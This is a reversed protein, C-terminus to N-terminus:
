YVTATTDTSVMVDKLTKTDFMTYSVSVKYDVEKMVEFMRDFDVGGDKEKMWTMVAHAHISGSGDLFYGEDADLYYAKTEDASGVFFGGNRTMCIYPGPVYTDGLSQHFLDINAIVNRVDGKHKVFFSVLLTLFMNVDYQTPIDGTIAIAVKNCASM